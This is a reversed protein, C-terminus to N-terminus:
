LVAVQKRTNSFILMTAQRQLIYIVAAAWEIQNVEQKANTFCYIFGALKFYILIQSFLALFLNRNVLSSCNTLYTQYEKKKLSKIMLIECVSVQWPHKLFLLFDKLLIKFDFKYQINIFKKLSRITFKRDNESFITLSAIKRINNEIKDIPLYPCTPSNVKKSKPGVM